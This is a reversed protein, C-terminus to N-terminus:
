EGRMLQCIRDLTDAREIIETYEVGNSLYRTAAGTNHAGALLTHAPMSPCDELPWGRNKEQIAVIHNDKLIRKTDVTPNSKGQIENAILKNVIQQKM